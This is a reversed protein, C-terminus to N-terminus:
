GALLGDFKREQQNDVGAAIRSRAAPTFGFEAAYRVMDAAAKRAMYALPNQVVGGGERKILLGRM